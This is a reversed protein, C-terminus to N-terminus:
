LYIFLYYYYYFFYFIFFFVIKKDAESKEKKLRLTNYEKGIDEVENEYYKYDRQLLDQIQKFSDSIRLSIKKINEFFSQMEEM